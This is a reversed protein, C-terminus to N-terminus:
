RHIVPRPEDTVAIRGKMCAMELIQRADLGKEALQQAQDLSLEIPLAGGGERAELVMHRTADVANVLLPASTASGYGFYNVESAELDWPCKNKKPAGLAAFVRTREVITYAALAEQSLSGELKLPLTAKLFDELGLENVICLHNSKGRHYVSVAGKYQIGNVYVMTKPSQPIVAIQYVDLYEEGWRLGHQQGYVVFRKGQNGLSLLEGTDRRVVAYKGKVELLASDCDRELLVRVKRGQADGAGSLASVAAFGSVTMGVSLLLGRVFFRMGM